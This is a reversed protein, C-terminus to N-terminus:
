VGHKKHLKGVEEEELEDKKEKAKEGLVKLDTDSLKDLEGVRKDLYERVNKEPEDLVEELLANLIWGMRPGAKIGLEEMLVKGDVKLQKVSIPDRLAQEIMAHYKRLRYPAEKKNMGVRDCERIEMLEWIHDPGVNQIVRRVASLTIQETDSFFMHRRVMNTVFEITEKDFKLRELINKAIRAGVVEHGYFTYAKKVGPRRTRPKGIDHLLAALRIQTSYGKDIANGLAGILHEFVDYIHAGGQDCGIGEALEPIIHKMLGLKQLMAVGQVGNKNEIIKVFEDKVREKSINALLDANKMISEMTEYSVAFDLETAFRIARLLRLADEQFRADPEGVTRIVKDKLDEQGKYLDILQGKLSFAMANITFDRRQLDDEIKTSFIVEDPHRNDTYKGEKRYPTVEVIHYKTEAEKTVHTVLESTEGSVNDSIENNRPICVAVTGFTNEYVTKEFLGIIQEPTANTTIDWDKPERGIILDRVCGGVLFAEFGAKELNNTVHTVYDPINSTNIKLNESM